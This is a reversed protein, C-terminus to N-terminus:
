ASPGMGRRADDTLAHLVEEGADVVTRVRGIHGPLLPTARTVADGDRELRWVREGGARGTGDGRRPGAV